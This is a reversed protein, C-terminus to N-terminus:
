ASADRAGFDRLGRELQTIAREAERRVGRRIAPLATGALAADRVYGILAGHLGLLTNAVVRCVIDGPAAGTEEALLAALDRAYLDFVQRERALLAPSKTIVRTITQLRVAAEEDGGPGELALVGGQGLLFVAFATLVGQGPERARIAAVLEQEFAELRSYFLDEKTPFYNFVTQEAVEAARAVDSVTTAEFGREFFLQRATEAILERTRRKKRERLGLPEAGDPSGVISIM